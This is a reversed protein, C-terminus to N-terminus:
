NIYSMVGLFGDPKIVKNSFDERRECFGCCKLTIILRSNGDSGVAIIVSAGFVNVYVAM